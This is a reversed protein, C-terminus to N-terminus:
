GLDMGEGLDVSVRGRSRLFHVEKEDDGHEALTM